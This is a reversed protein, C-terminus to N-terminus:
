NNIVLRFGEGHINLIQVKKDRVLYKRLKAIYVDMSRSTFYNDDRWIKNLAKERPLLDNVHLVLLRLLQNEKPSLKIDKGDKYTLIRLKSNFNFDSFDFEFIDNDPIFPKKNRNLTAKIKALLVESDFPKTMYDDGGIKFGKLVDEKLHKATLFFIPVEDNKERIEKALTFGDKYPMMIDLICLDFDSKNFKEFGEIGNKALVVYYDNLTLYEKLIKGFNPDDEVILIKKNQNKM